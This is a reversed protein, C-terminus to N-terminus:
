IWSIVDLKPHIDTLWLRSEKKMSEALKLMFTFNRLM